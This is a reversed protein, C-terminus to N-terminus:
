VSQIKNGSKTSHTLSKEWSKGFISANEGKALAPVHHTNPCHAMGWCVTGDRKECRRIRNKWCRNEKSSSCTCARESGKQAGDSTYHGWPRHTHMIPRFARGTTSQVAASCWCHRDWSPRHGDGPVVYRFRIYSTSNREGVRQSWRQRPSCM